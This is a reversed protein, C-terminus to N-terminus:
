GGSKKECSARSKGYYALAQDVKGQRRCIEGVHYFMLWNRYGNKELEKYITLADDLLGYQYLTEALELKAYRNYPRSQITKRLSDLEGKLKPWLFFRLRLSAKQKYNNMDPSNSELIRDFCYIANKEDGIKEYAIGMFFLSGMHNENKKLAKMFWPIAKTYDKQNYALAGNAYEYDVKLPDIVAAKLFLDFANRYDHKSFYYYGLNAYAIDNEGTVAIAHSFLSGSDKWYTAQRITSFMLAAIIIFSGVCLATKKYRMGFSFEEIGWTAIIFLGIYALYVFRDAMAPWLGARVLGCAPLLMLLYWFWGVFLWRRKGAQMCAFFTIVTLVLAAVLVQWMPFATPMPYYVSLDSPFLLKEIYAAYSFIANYIKEILTVIRQEDNQYKNRVSMLTVSISLISLAFLPIKEIILLGLPSIRPL